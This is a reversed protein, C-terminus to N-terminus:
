PQKAASNHAAASDATEYKNYCLFATSIFYKFFSSHTIKVPKYRYMNCLITNDFKHLVHFICFRAYFISFNM